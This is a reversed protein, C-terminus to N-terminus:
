FRATMVGNEIVFIIDFNAFFDLVYQNTPGAVAGYQNATGKGGLNNVASAIGVNCEFFVNSALTNMGSLLVSSKQAFTELEQGIMFGNQYSSVDTSQAVVGAAVTGANGGGGISFDNSGDIVNFNSYPISGAYDPNQLSHYMKQIEAFGESFNGTTNQNWLTVFRAPALISGVRFWYSAIQPNVRSSLSYGNTLAVTVSNRPCVLLSKVSAMRAPVLTSFTGVTSAPLNSTYRYRSTSGLILLRPSPPRPRSERVSSHM